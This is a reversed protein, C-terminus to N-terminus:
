VEQMLRRINELEAEGLKGSPKGSKNKPKTDGQKVQEVTLLNNAQWNSLIKNMYAWALKGTSIMTRDYAISLADVSYGMELWSDLYKQETPTLARHHVQMMERIRYGEQERASLTGLYDEAQELTLIERNAWYYAKSRANIKERNAEQYAKHYAAINQRNANYYNKNRAALKERNAEKYAKMYERQQAKEEESAAHRMKRQYALIEERNAQYYAKRYAALRERNKERYAKHYDAIKERNAERYEAIKERNKERYAKRYDAIREKNAERYAKAFAKKLAESRETEGM